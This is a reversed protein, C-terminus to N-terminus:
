VFVVLEVFVVVDFVVALAVVDFVVALAVVDFVVALAVLSGRGDGSGFGREFM